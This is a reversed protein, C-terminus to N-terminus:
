SKHNMAALRSLIDEIGERVSWRPTVGLIKRLPAPDVGRKVVNDIERPPIRVLPKGTRQAFWEALEALSTEVGTGIDVIEEPRKERAALIGAVSDKVYTFDRMQGGEVLTISDGQIWRGIVSATDRLGFVNSLRVITVPIWRRYMLGYREGTRKSIAYHSIESHVSVSSIYLMPKNFERCARLLNLTGLINVEADEMPETISHRIDRCAGHIVEDCDRVIERIAPSRIDAVITREFRTKPFSRDDLAVAGDLREVLHSGVFGEGGTVLIM